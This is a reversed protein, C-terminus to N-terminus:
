GARSQQNSSVTAHEGLLAKAGEGAIFPANNDAELVDGITLKGNMALRERLNSETHRVHYASPPMVLDLVTSGAM